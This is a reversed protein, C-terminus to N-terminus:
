ITINKGSNLGAGTVLHTAAPSRGFEDRLARIKRWDPARAKRRWQGAFYGRRVVM